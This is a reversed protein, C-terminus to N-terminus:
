QLPQPKEVKSDRVADTNVGLLALIIRERRTASELGLQANISSVHGKITGQSLFLADAIEANSMGSLLCWSVERMRRTMGYAAMRAEIEEMM